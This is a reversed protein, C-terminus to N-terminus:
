RYEEIASELKDKSERVTEDDAAYFGVKRAAWQTWTLREDPEAVGDEIAAAHTDDDIEEFYFRVFERMVERDFETANVYVYMWRTLPTYEEQEITQTTPEVPGEVPGDPDDVGILKLNDENEYYYGAGGWGLAYRDGRVGRVIVNTDASASYDNRINGIEGMLRETYSDFTGSAPDRGFLAIEEDPWDEEPRVDAWTDVDSGSQWIRRLEEVTLDDCWDNAPHAFVAIGDRLATLELFEIDNEGCGSVEDDLIQRSANQLDTAGQCFQQFGAGTGSGRVPINVRNNKWLFEEAVAAGHPLVTNSGDVVVTGRLGSDEGHLGLDIVGACGALSALGATSATLFARRSSRGTENPPSDPM